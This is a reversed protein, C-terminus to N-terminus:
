KVTRGCAVRSCDFLTRRYMSNTFRAMLQGVWIGRQSLTLVAQVPLFVSGTACLQGTSFLPSVPRHIGKQVPRPIGKLRTRSTTQKQKNKEFPTPSCSPDLGSGVARPKMFGPRYTELRRERSFGQESFMGGFGLGLVECCVTCYKKRRSGDM